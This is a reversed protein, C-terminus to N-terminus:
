SRRRPSAPCLRRGALGLRRGRLVAPRRRGPRLLPRLRARRRDRWREEDAFAPSGWIRLGAIHRQSTRGRPRDGAARDALACRRPRRVATRGARRDDVDGVDDVAAARRHEIALTQVIMGGMSLGMVHAREVGAADLVAVADAAMDALPYAAGSSTSRPTPSTRRCGSTATTSASSTSGAAVFRECWEDKYNICQSGLGNVLLLTPDSPSGFTEYYLECDGNSAYPM